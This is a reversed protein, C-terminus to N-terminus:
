PMGCVVSAAGACECFPWICYDQQCMQCAEDGPDSMCQAMCHDISCQILDGFCASCGASLGTSGSICDSACMASDGGMCDMACGTAVDYVGDGESILISADSGGECAGGGGGICMGGDCNSGPPCSGCSGGCGDDGCEVPGCYPECPECEFSYDCDSGPPCFGCSGGCGDDGCDKDYCDPICSSDDEWEDVWEDSWDDIWDNGGGGERVDTDGGSGGSGCYCSGWHKDSGCTREGSGGSSCECDGTSGPTCLLSAGGGANGLGAGEECAPAALLLLAACLIPLAWPGRKPASVRASPNLM